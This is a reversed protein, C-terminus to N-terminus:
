RDTRRYHGKESRELLGKKVMRLCIPSAWASGNHGGHLLGGIMTPSTWGRGDLLRYIKHENLTM